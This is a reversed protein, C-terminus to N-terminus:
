LCTRQVRHPLYGSPFITTTPSALPHGDILYTMQISCSCLMSLFVMCRPFPEKLFITLCVILLCGLNDSSEFLLQRISPFVSKRTEICIIWGSSCAFGRTSHKISQCAHNRIKGTSTGINGIRREVLPLRGTVELMYTPPIDRIKQM